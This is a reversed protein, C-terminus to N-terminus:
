TSVAASKCACIKDLAEQLDLICERGHVAHVSRRNLEVKKSSALSLLEKWCPTCLSGFAACVSCASVALELPALAFEVLGSSKSSSVSIM